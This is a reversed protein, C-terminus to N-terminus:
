LVYCISLLLFVLSLFGCMAVVVALFFFTARNEPFVDKARDLAYFVALSVLMVGFLALAQMTIRNFTHVSIADFFASHRSRIEDSRSTM